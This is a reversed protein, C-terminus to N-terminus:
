TTRFFAYSHGMSALLVSNQWWPKTSRDFAGEIDLAVVATTKSQDLAASLQTTLLLHLDAASRGQRFGFQRVCLLHHKNTHETIRSTVISELVKSLVPLLSVPRYNKVVNKGGKKHVPVVNSTKWATPWTGTQLCHSFLSALPRALESACQRLLRPSINDSGSAKKEDMKLLANKIEVESVKIDTLTDKIIHPLAPITREPEPITMKGAFQRALLNAKDQASHALSGDERLLSPISTGRVEGQQEKVLGWWRKNGVQGGRLKRRLDAKWQESAWEQTHRMRQSAERLRQRNGESPRRKYAVWARYKTDSAVRCEPGFWPQDSTKTTHSTHPVWHAQLALLLESLRGVQQDVDGCLVTEWDTRRLDDRLAGWNAADWRWLMRTYSEERPRRFHVKTLVAVHDSTGVLDLPSCQVDSPPLDTMVPDLSSGSIHTPFTVHNQLDHVVMLTNFSHQVTHPNLDGVILVRECQSATMISDLNVTLYDILTTGQSPPRYCGICLLNKGGSDIIKLMLMELDSPVNAPLEVVQVIVREKYCFAVGGGRTSRDKRIWPSYGRVRAYSSPIKDDLFTECVFVIDARNRTIASHTLDGINTHFGRVNASVITLESNDPKHRYQTTSPGPAM